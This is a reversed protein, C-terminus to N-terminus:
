GIRTLAILFVHWGALIAYGTLALRLIVRGELVGFAPVRALTAAVVVCVGTIWQKWLAFVGPDWAILRRMFPNAEEATGEAMLYLTSGADFASLFLICLAILVYRTELRRRPDFLTRLDPVAGVKRVFARPRGRTRSTTGGPPASWQRNQM